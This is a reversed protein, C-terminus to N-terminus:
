FPCSLMASWATAEEAELFHFVMICLFLCGQVLALGPRVHSVQGLGGKTHNMQSIIDQSSKTVPESGFQCCRKASQLRSFPNKDRM